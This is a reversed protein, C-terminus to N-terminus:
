REKGSVKRVNPYLASLDVRFEYDGSIKGVYFLKDLKSRYVLWDGAKVEHIFRFLQSGANTIYGQKKSPLLEAVAAKFADRSPALKRLDGVDHWGIGIYGQERAMADGSEGMHIGWYVREAM